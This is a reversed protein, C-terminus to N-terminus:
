ASPVDDPLDYADARTLHGNCDSVYVLQRGRRFVLQVGHEIEWSCDCIVQVYIDRDRRDRRSVFIEFPQVNAWVDAPNSISFTFQEDGVRDVFDRYNQFLRESAEEREVIGLSLFNVVAANIDEGNGVGDDLCDFILPFSTELLPIALPASVRWEPVDPYAILPGAAPVSVM